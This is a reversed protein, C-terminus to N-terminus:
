AHSGAPGKRAPCDATKGCFLVPLIGNTKSWITEVNKVEESLM